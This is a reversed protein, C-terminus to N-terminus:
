QGATSLDFYAAAHLASFGVWAHIRQISQKRLLIQSAAAFLQKNEMFEVAVVTSAQDRSDRLHWGWNHAAYDLLPYQEMRDSLHMSRICPGRSCTSSSLYTICM